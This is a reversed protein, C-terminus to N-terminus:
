LKQIALFAWFGDENRLGNKWVNTDPALCILHMRTICSLAHPTRACTHLNTLTIYRRSTTNECVDYCDIQAESLEQLEVDLTLYLMSPLHLERDIVIKEDPKVSHLQGAKYVGVPISELDLVCSDGIHAANDNNVANWFIVSEEQREKTRMARGVKHNELLRILLAVGELRM